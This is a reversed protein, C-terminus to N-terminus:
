TEKRFVFVPEHRFPSGGNKRRNFPLVSMRLLHTRALRFLKCALHKTDTAIPAGDVNAVNLVLLGDPKLLRYSETIVSNLFGERWQDYEPYRVYSQSCSESYKELDFYPPSTLILDYKEGPEEQMADEACAERLEVTARALGLDRISRHM